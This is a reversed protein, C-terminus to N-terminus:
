ICVESRFDEFKGARRPIEDLYSLTLAFTAGLTEQLHAHLRTEEDTTLHREAVLRMEVADLAQQVVQYQLLRPLPGARRFSAADGLSPWIRDGDPRVFMNRARGRVRTIVPLGRGCSCPPGVEAFDGVEYRLLPTAFNHLTSVVVRGSSGPACLDGDEDVVEVLLNESQVHYHENDPCQLGIYGAEQTSYMDVVPVGWASRCAVRVKEDLVEGFTAVEVLGPLDLGERMFYEALALVNSPYTLVYAPAHRALWGAQEATTRDIHLTVAAGTRIVGSFPPGWTPLVAGEPPPRQLEPFERITAHKLSFDRGHWLHDRVTLARWFLQAPATTLTKLPRGTSGSTQMVVTQGHDVPVATSWLAEGAEQAGARTLIPVTRWREETVDTGGAPSVSPLRDKYYPVTSQAHAVVKALQRRQREALMPAPWWQTRELQFLTSLLTASASTPIAPWAIGTAASEFPVDAPM